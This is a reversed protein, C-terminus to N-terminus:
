KKKNIGYKKRKEWLSKRSIGLKKSLETDTFKNQFTQIIYKVYDDISLIDGNEYIKNYNDLSLLNFDNNLEENLDTTCLIVRKKDIVSLLKTKESKKLKQFNVLYLLTHNDYQEIKGIAHPSDVAIFVPTENISKTYEYVLKDILKQYSSRIFIPLNIKKTDIRKLSSNKFSNEIYNKLFENEKKFKKYEFLHDIKRILEEIMFPKLMYDDVGMKLPKSVTDNSIYSILLIIISNKYKKIAPYFNQGSINTSLLVIDYYGEELSEKITAVIKCSYGVESLKASISQALYIENEVILVKM